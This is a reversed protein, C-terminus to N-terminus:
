TTAARDSVLGAVALYTAPFTGHRHTWRALGKWRKHDALAHEVPIRQSFHNHRAQERAEHVEPAAIKNPKKPPTVAKGPHDRRLGLYGDYLLM